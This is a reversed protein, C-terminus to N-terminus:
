KLIRSLINKPIHYGDSTYAASLIDGSIEISGDKACNEVSLREGKIVLDGCETYVFVEKDSFSETNRVASIRVKNRNEIILVHNNM